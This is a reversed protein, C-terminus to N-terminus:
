LSGEKLVADGQKYEFGHAYYGNHANYLHLYRVRSPDNVDYMGFIAENAWEEATPEVIWWWQKPNFRLDDLVVEVKEIQNRKAEDREPVLEDSIYAGFHECCSQEACYGVFVNNEDIWNCRRDPAQV